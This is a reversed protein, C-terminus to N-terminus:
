PLLDSPLAAGPPKAMLREIADEVTPVPVKELLYAHDEDPADNWRYQGNPDYEFHGEDVVGWYSDPGRVAALVATQDWSFRGAFDNFLEYARYVPSSADTAERLEAGGTIIAEGIEAGSFLIPTPWHTLVAHSAAPEIGLNYDGPLMTPFRAGMLVYLAVKQEVLEPGSLPSHVDPGSELLAQLNTLFGVTLIVVSQDPQSALLRRYLAVPEEVEAPEIDHPFEQALAIRYPISDGRENDINAIPIDPRGYYTNVADLSTAAEDGGFSIAMGLIDLEENDALAHLVAAAGVDDVDPGWDTDFILRVPRSGPEGNDDGSCGPSPCVSLLAMLILLRRFM